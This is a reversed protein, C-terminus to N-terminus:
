KKALYEREEETMKVIAYRKVENILAEDMADIVNQYISNDSAKILLMLGDRGENNVPYKDLYQQKARVINGLGEKYSFTTEKVGGNAVAEKWYGEYYFVRNDEALLITLANSKALENPPENQKTDAPMNLNVSRPESLQATFVFFTILLFGLDVMPTMDIRSSHKKMRKVGRRHPGSTSEVTDQLQAM